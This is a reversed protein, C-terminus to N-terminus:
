TAATTIWQSLGSLLPSFFLHRLSRKLGFLAVGLLNVTEALPHASHIATFYQACADEFPALAESNDEWPALAGSSSLSSPHLFFMAQARRRFEPPHSLSAARPRMGEQGQANKGIIQGIATETESGAAMHPRSHNAIAGFPQHALRDPQSLGQDLWSPIHHEDGALRDLLRIVVSYILRNGLEDPLSVYQAFIGWPATFLSSSVPRARSVNTDVPSKAQCAAQM